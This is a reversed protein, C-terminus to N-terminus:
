ADNGARVARLSTTALSPYFGRCMASCWRPARAVRARGAGDAVL